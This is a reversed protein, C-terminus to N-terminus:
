NNNLDNWQQSNVWVFSIPTGVPWVGPDIAGGHGEPRGNPGGYSGAYARTVNFYYNNINVSGYYQRRMVRMIEIGQEPTGLLIFPCNDNTGGGVLGDIYQHWYQGYGDGYNNYSTTRNPEYVGIDTLVQLWQPFTTFMPPGYIGINDIYSNITQNHYVDHIHYISNPTTIEGMPIRNNWQDETITEIFFNSADFQQSIDMFSVDTDANHSLIPSDGYGRQAVWFDTNGSYDKALVRIYEISNTQQQEEGELAQHFIKFYDGVEIADNWLESFPENGTYNPHNKFVDRRFISVNDIGFYNDIQTTIPLNLKFLYHDTWSDELNQLPPSQELAELELDMVDDFDAPVTYDPAFEPPDAGILFEGPERWPTVTTGGLELQPAAISIRPNNTNTFRLTEDLHKFIFNYTLLPNDGLGSPLEVDKWTLRTWGENTSFPVPSGMTLFEGRDSIQTDNTDPYAAFYPQITLTNLSDTKVYVSFCYKSVINEELAVVPNVNHGHSYVGDDFIDYQIKPPEHVLWLDTFTANPNGEGYRCRFTLQPPITHSMWNGAFATFPITVNTQSSFLSYNEFDIHEIGDESDDDRYLRAVIADNSNPIFERDIHFGQGNDWYWKQYSGDDSFEVNGTNDVIVPQPMGGGRYVVMFDQSYSGDLIPQFRSKDSGVFMIYAETVVGQGQVGTTVGRINDQWTLNFESDSQEGDYLAEQPSVYPERAMASAVGSFTDVRFTRGNPHVFDFQSPFFRIHGDAHEIDGFGPNEQGHLSIREGNFHEVDHQM